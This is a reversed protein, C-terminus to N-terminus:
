HPHRNPDGPLHRQDKHFHLDPRVSLLRSLGADTAKGGDLYFSELTGIAAVSVLGADTIPVGMLHLFKLRPLDPLAAIGADTVDPSAFRLLTLRDLTALRRLGADTLRADPLNLIELERLRAIAAATADDAPGSLKLWRLRRVGDFAAALDDAPVTGDPRVPLTVFLTRLGECGRSLDRLREAPVAADCRIEDSRGARVDAVQEAWSPEVTAVSAAPPPADQACGASLALLALLLRCASRKM